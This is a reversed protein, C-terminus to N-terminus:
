RKEWPEDSIMTRAAWEALGLDEQPDRSYSEIIRRDIEAEADDALYGEVADRVLESRSRGERAARGDLRALLEDTLQVLTQKRAIVM